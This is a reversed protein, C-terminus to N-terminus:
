RASGHDSRWRDALVYVPEALLDFVPSGELMDATLSAETETVADTLAALRGQYGALVARAQDADLHDVFHAHLLTLGTVEAGKTEPVLIVTRGDRRGRAVTVERTTAVRHKTGRLTPDDATRSVLSAAVGGLDVVHITAGDGGVSGEIRYRTHGDVSSVAQDLAALTRLARYGLRDRGVGAVLVARVLAPEFLAEESRSIGVTITKAQHKIADIPRTLADIGRSLVELLDEAIAAPTGIRGHELEYDDHPREGGAYRLLSALDVAVSADLSGDLAGSRLEHRFRSAHPAVAAAVRDFMSPDVADGVDALAAEVAARAERLLRAQADIAMAAGYGFLHGAMASLVFALRPHVVPVFITGLAEEFRRDGATAVVIPAARHARYIAVEKAVDDGTSGELGAACVFILPEASLDIHKKDETADAPISRYCLESIKIRVEEAAIRNTGNGVVAWSRRSPAYRTALEGIAERQDLVQGMADPLDLLGRLLGDVEDDDACGAADALGCALLMGAAVQSYWAKTSPVSMEIDRGDATYLVGDAKEVLDSNRRNVIAVVSAGRARVLDVTRNTDTTTGSQSIPVVLTDSMDDTLGFGSLETAPLAVAAVGVPALAVGVADAVAAAAVRATGQGIAVVRRIRGAGLAARLQGPITAPGLDVRLRGDAGTVIRGRLTKRMSQPSEALEKRLFHPHDGRDIDRTTIEPVVLESESVPLATADYAMRTVGALEGALAGDLAVIQGPGGDVGQPSEGDLRLYTSAEEVLGYPESAVIFADAALGVYLSQGSGRQALLLTDPSGAALAVVAVSGDLQRATRAFADTVEAGDALARSVLVPIVKADTTIAGPMRLGASLRLENHNDVDGNLVATVAPAPAVSDGTEAQDLPHANAESILGVSAWRTHALVTVWSQPGAVALRLLDDGALADRLARTNDGLEGIEASAKYVFSLCGEVAAVAGSNLVPDFRRAVAEALDPAALDLGHDRVLVQLGASDRGRVELRDLAGLALDISCFAEVTSVTPDPGALTAVSRARGVRDRAVSWGADKLAVLAANLGEIDEVTGPSYEGADLAAEIAAARELALSGIQDVHDLLDGDGLLVLLGPTGRLLQDVRRLADTAVDVQAVDVPGSALKSRAEAVLDRVVVADPVPRSAPRRVVAVIGCM